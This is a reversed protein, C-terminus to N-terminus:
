EETYGVLNVKVQVENSVKLRTGPNLDLGYEDLLVAFDSRLVLLDRMDGPKKKGARKNAADKLYNLSMDVSIQKTTGLFTFAGEAVGEVLTDSSNNPTFSSIVFSIEPYEKANLWRTGYMNKTMPNNNLEISDVQLHISGTIEKPNVPDYSIFGSVGDGKGSIFELPADLIVLIHNIGKEDEFDFSQSAANIHTATILFLLSIFWRM